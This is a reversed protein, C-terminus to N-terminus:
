ALPVECVVARGENCNSHHYQWRWDNNNRHYLACPRDHSDLSHGPHLRVQLNKQIVRMDERTATFFNNPDAGGPSSCFIGTFYWENSTMGNQEVWLYEERNTAVFIHGQARNCIEEGQRFSKHGTPRLDKYCHNKYKRWGGECDGRPNNIKFTPKWNAADGHRGRCDGPFERVYYGEFGGAVDKGYDTCIVNAGAALGLLALLVYCFMACTQFSSTITPDMGM